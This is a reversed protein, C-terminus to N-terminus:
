YVGHMGHEVTEINEDGLVLNKVFSCWGIVDM